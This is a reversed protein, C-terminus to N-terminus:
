QLQTALYGEPFAENGVEPYVGEIVNLTATKSLPFAVQRRAKMWKGLVPNYIGGLKIFYSLDGPPYIFNRKNDGSLYYPTPRLPTEDSLVDVKDYFDTNTIKYGIPAAANGNYISGGDDIFIVDIPVTSVDVTTGEFVAIGSTNGSNALINGTTRGFGDGKVRSYDFSRIWKAGSIDTSNLGSIKKDSGGVYFFEGKTVKGSTLNFKFTRSSGTTALSGTAWGLTPYGTPNTAGANNTTVVSFPTAAFDIDRTAMFQMYELNRDTSGTEIADPFYGTIVIDSIEPVSSLAKVDNLTRIHHRPVLKGDVEKNFPIGYYVANFYLGTANAFTAGPETHLTIAGFGDNISKDGSYVDVPTASPVFGAKAIAVLSSEYNDPNAVIDSSAVRNKPVRVNSAVKTIATTQVGTLQLIGDVRKLVAGLVDIQLSDGPVYNAAAAGLSISIGRVLGIRRYSQIVLLGSPLNKGSHDSIVTGEIKSSGLLNQANLTLDADKYISRLDYLPFFANVTGGPYNSDEKCGSWTMVVSLLILSSLLIKKM